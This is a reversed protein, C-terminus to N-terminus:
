HLKMPDVAGSGQPAKEMGGLHVSLVMELGKSELYLKLVEAAEEGKLCSVAARNLVSSM